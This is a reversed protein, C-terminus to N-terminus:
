TIRLKNKENCKKCRFHIWRMGDIMEETEFSSSGYTKCKYCYAKSLFNEREKEGYDNFSRYRRKHTFHLKVKMVVFSIMIVYTLPILVFLNGSYFNSYYLEHLSIFRLDTRKDLANLSLASWVFVILSVLLYTWFINRWKKSSFIEMAIIDETKITLRVKVRFYEM